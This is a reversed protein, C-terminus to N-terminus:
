LLEKAQDILNALRLLRRARERMDAAEDILSQQPGKSRNLLVSAEGKTHTILLVDHQGSVIRANTVIPRAM